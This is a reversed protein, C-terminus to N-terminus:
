LIHAYGAGDTNDECNYLRNPAYLGFDSVGVAYYRLYIRM